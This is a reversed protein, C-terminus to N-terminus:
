MLWASLALQHVGGFHQDQNKLFTLIHLPINQFLHLHKLKQSLSEMQQLLFSFIFQVEAFVPHGDSKIM